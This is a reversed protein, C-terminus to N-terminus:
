KVLRYLIHVDDTVAGLPVYGIAGKNNKIIEIIEDFSEAQRPPVGRGTFVLRAWYSNIESLNKDMLKQYFGGRMPNETEIDIPILYAGNSLRKMRGMYIDVVEKITLTQPYLDSTGVVVLEEDSALAQDIFVIIILFLATLKM